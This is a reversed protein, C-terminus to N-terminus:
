AAVERPRLDNGSERDGAARDLGFNLAVRALLETRECTSDRKLSAAGLRSRGFAHSINQAGGSRM